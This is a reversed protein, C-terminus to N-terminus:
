EYALAELVDLRAARRAPLVAAGVGALGSLILLALISPVSVAFHFDDIVRSVLVALVVGIAVGLVGGILATIVAEARIMRRVQRRSTGIARLMGLERTRETISLVLTNVIGFLSVIVALALLAYITYLLQNIQNVQNDVFERNSLAEVQPFRDKLLADISRRVQKADAGPDFGVLVVGLQTASFERGLAETDLNLDGTLHGKDDVVGAVRLKVTTKLPTRVHLVQGVHVHHNDAFKKAVATDGPGLSRLISDGSDVHYLATFTRPDVGVVNVSKGLTRGGSFRIASVRGVGPVKAVAGAVQPTFPSFGDTNQVIAQARSGNSVATRITKRASSAFISAFCVLAVGVM